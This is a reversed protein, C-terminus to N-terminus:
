GTPRQRRGMCTFPQLPCGDTTTVRGWVGVAVHSAAEGLPLHGIGDVGEGHHGMLFELLLSMTPVFLLASHSVLEIVM